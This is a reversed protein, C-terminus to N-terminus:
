STHMVASPSWARGCKCAPPFLLLLVCKPRPIRGEAIAAEEKEAHRLMSAFGSIGFAAAAM